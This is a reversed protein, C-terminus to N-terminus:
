RIQAHKMEIQCVDSDSSLQDTGAANTATVFLKWLPLRIPDNKRTGALTEGPVVIEQKTKKKKSKKMSVSLHM